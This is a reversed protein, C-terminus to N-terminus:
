QKFDNCFRKANPYLAMGRGPKWANVRCSGIGTSDGIKDPQFHECDGCTVPDIDQLIDPEEPEDYEILPELDVVEAYGRVTELRIEGARIGAMDDDSLEACLQSRSFNLGTVARDLLQSVEEDPLPKPEETVPLAELEDDPGIRLLKAAEAITAGSAFDVETDNLRFRWCRTAAEKEAAHLDLDHITATQLEAIIEAKHCRLFQLQEQTLKSFPEVMLRGNEAELTFGARQVTTAVNM